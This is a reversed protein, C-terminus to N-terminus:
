HVDLPQRPFGSAHRAAHPHRAAAEDPTGRQLHRARQAPRQSAARMHTAWRDARPLRCMITPNLSSRAPSAVRMLLLSCASSVCIWGIPVPVPVALAAALGAIIRRPKRHNEGNPGLFRRKGLGLRTLHRTVTRRNIVYGLAALEDTIRQAPWKHNRRWTEIQEVVWDPTATPSHHPVSSRDQLGAEGSSCWRDVWKGACARSNGREAAVHAIPRTRCREVLRRRGEMSLPANSHIM